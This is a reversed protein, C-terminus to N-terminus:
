GGLRGDAISIITQSRETSIMNRSPQLLTLLKARTVQRPLPILSINRLTIRLTSTRPRNPQLRLNRTRTGTQRCSRNWDSFIFSPLPSHHQEKTFRTPKACIHSTQSPQSRILCEGSSKASFSLFTFMSLLIGIALVANEGFSLVIELPLEICTAKACRAM